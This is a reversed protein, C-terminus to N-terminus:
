ALRLSRDATIPVTVVPVDATRVVREAVSGLLVREIGGRGHTGMVILDAEVAEAFRPIVRGPSGERVTGEVAVASPAMEIIEEIIATGEDHLAATVGDWARETPLGGYSAINVVHLAEIRAEHIHALEFAYQVARHGEDSGDTPLLIVDHM